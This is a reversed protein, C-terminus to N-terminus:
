YRSNSYSDRRNSNYNDSGGRSNNSFKKKYPSGSNSKEKEKAISVVLELGDPTVSGDLDAIVQDSFENPVTVFCFNKYGGYDRDTILIIDTDDLVLDPNVSSFITKILELRETETTKQSLNGIRVFLKPMFLPTKTTVFLSCTLTISYFLYLLHWL